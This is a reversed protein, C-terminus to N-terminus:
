DNAKKFVYRMEHWTEGGWSSNAEGYDHFGFKQYMAVKENLCTLFIAKRDQMNQLYYNVLKRAIGQHRYKPLVGLSLIMVHKGNQNHLTIDTFFEDRFSEENTGIGIIYGIIKKTHKNLAVFFFEQAYIARKRMIKPACAENIPFCIHECKIVQQIENRKIPRIEIKNLM